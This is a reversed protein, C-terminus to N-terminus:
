IPCYSILGYYSDRQDRTFHGTWHLFPRIAPFPVGRIRAYPSISSPIQAGIEADTGIGYRPERQEALASFAEDTLPGKWRAMAELAAEKMLAGPEVDLLRRGPTQANLKELKDPADWYGAGLASVALLFVFFCSSKM